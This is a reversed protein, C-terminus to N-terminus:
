AAYLRELEDVTRSITARRRAGAPVGTRMEFSRRQAYDLESWIRQLRRATRKIRSTTFTM